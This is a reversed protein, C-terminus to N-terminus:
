SIICDIDSRREVGGGTDLGWRCGGLPDGNLM